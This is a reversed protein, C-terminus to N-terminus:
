CSHKEVNRSATAFLNIHILLFVLKKPMIIFILDIIFIHFITTNASLLQTSWSVVDLDM